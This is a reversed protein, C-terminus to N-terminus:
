GYSKAEIIRSGYALSISRKLTARADNLLYVCRAMLVFRSDFVGMTEFNRVREEVEWLCANITLLDDILPAIRQCPEAQISALSSVLGALDERIHLLKASDSIRAQKILLITIRDILEGPPVSIRISSDHDM